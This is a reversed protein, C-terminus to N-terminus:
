LPLNVHKRPNSNSKYALMSVASCIRKRLESPEIIDDIEGLECARVSSAYKEKWEAELEDRSKEAAKDNWVFAVSAEPSLLSITSDSLAYVIDTGLAKSALLTFSAGYAKNMVVSIKPNTSSAYATALRALESSYSESEAKASLELGESDVLNVFAINFSDCFSILKTIVRAAKIDVIGKASPGNAVICCIMGGVSAFAASLTNSYRDYVKVFQGNDSIKEIIEDASYNSPDIEIERNVDDEIHGMYASEFNNSPLFELMNKAFALAEEENEACFASAGNKLSFENEKLDDGVVFPPNVYLKSRDKITVVFDFMSAIIASSAICAGDIIAIQPIVGSAESVCKMFKSYASLASAGDYVIAGASNFIGIVPAGNKVALAYLDSLKKAQREGFAGKCRDIEQAFAFTLAGNVAGYGCVVGELENNNHVRKTYAGTEVFTGDDFFSTLQM